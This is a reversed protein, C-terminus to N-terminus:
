YDVEDPAPSRHPGDTALGEDVAGVYSGDVYIRTPGVPVEATLVAGPSVSGQAVVTSGQRFEVDHFGSDPGDSSPGQCYAVRQVPPQAPSGCAALALLCLPLAALAARNAPRPGDRSPVHNRWYRADM